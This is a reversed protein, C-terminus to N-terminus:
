SPPSRATLPNSLVASPLHVRYIRAMIDRPQIGSIISPFFLPVLNHNREVSLLCHLGCAGVEFM